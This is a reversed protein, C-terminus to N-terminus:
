EYSFLIKLPPTPNSILRTFEQVATKFPVVDSILKEFSLAEEIILLAAEKNLRSLNWLPYKPHTNGNITMSPIISIRNRHFEHGLYIGESQNGYSSIIVVKGMPAICKISSSLGSYSGSTEIVSDLPAIKKIMEAPEGLQYNVTHAGFQRALELRDEICDIGIINRVGAKKLLGICILGVVGLGCVGISDGVLPCVDHVGGLSVRTLAFLTITQPNTNSPFRFFPVPNKLDLIHTERHPGDIWVLDGIQWENVNKGLKEVRGVSEYGIPYIENNPPRKQFIRLEDNWKFKFKTADGRFLMGESGHSVASYITRLLISNPALDPDEYKEFALKGKKLLVLKRPM